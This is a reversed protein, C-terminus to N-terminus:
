QMQEVCCMESEPSKRASMQLSELVLGMWESAVVAEGPQM